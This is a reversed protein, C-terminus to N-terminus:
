AQLDHIESSEGKKIYHYYERVVHFAEEIEDPDDTESQIAFSYAGKSTQIYVM